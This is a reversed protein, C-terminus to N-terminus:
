FVDFVPCVEAKSELRVLRGAEVLPLYGWHPGLSPRPWGWNDTKSYYGTWVVGQPTTITITIVNYCLTPQM